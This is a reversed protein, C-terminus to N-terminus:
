VPKQSEPLQMQKNIFEAFTGRFGPISILAVQFFGDTDYGGKAWDDVKQASLDPDFVGLDEDKRVIFLSCLALAAEIKQGDPDNEVEAVGNMINHLIVAADAPRPQPLNLYSYAKKCNEFLTSFSVGYALRPMIKRYERYRSLPIKDLIRYEQGNAEFKRDKISITKLETVAPQESM